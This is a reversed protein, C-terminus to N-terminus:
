RKEGGLSNCCVVGKETRKALKVRQLGVQCGPGEGDSRMMMAERRM